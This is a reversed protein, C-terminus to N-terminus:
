FLKFNNKCETQPAKFFDTYKENRYEMTIKCKLYINVKYQM